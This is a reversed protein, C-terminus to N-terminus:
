HERVSGRLLLARGIAPAGAAGSLLLALVALLIKCARVSLGDGVFAALVVPLGSVVAIFGACHLRDLPTRLRVFGAAGLWAGLVAAALLVATLDVAGARRGDGADGAPRTRGAGLRPRRVITQDFAFSMLILILVTLGTAAQVAVLRGAMEGRCAAMVLVALPPLMGLVALHWAM